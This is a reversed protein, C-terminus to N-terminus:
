SAERLRGTWGQKLKWVAKRKIDSGYEERKFFQATAINVRFVSGKIGDAGIAPPLADPLLCAQGCVLLYEGEDKNIFKLTAEFLEEDGMMQDECYCLLEGEDGIRYVDVIYTECGNNATPKLLAQKLRLVNNELTDIEPKLM